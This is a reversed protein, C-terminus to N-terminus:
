FSDNFFLCQGTPLRLIEGAKDSFFKDVVDRTESKHGYDDFIILGASSLKPYFFELTEWTSISANLDIHMWSIKRPDKFKGLVEPIYGKCFFLNEKYASLNEETQALNLYAYAGSTTKQEKKTLNQPIMPGWADFLYMTFDKRSELASDFGQIAFFASMGDCVGAEIFVCQDKGCKKAAFFASWFVYYHRYDLSEIVEVENQGSFQSLIFQHGRVLDIFKGRASLFKKGIQNYGSQVDWPVSTSTTMGWGKFSYNKLEIRLSSLLKIIQDSKRM